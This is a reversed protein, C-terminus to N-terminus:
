VGDEVYRGDASECVGNRFENRGARMAHPNDVTWGGGAGDWWAGAELGCSM